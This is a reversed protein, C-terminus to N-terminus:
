RQIDHRTADKPVPLVFDEDSL